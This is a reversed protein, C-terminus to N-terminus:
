DSDSNEENIKNFSVLKSFISSVSRQRINNDLLCSKVKVPGLNDDNLEEDDEEELIFDDEIFQKKVEKMPIISTKSGKNFINMQAWSSKKNARIGHSSDLEMDTTMKRQKVIDNCDYSFSIFKTSKKRSESNVKGCTVIIPHFESIDKNTNQAAVKISLKTSHRLDKTMYDEYFKNTQNVLNLTNPNINKASSLLHSKCKYSDIDYALNNEDESDSIRNIKYNNYSPDLM